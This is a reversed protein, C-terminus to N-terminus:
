PQNLRFQIPFRLRVTNKPHSWRGEADSVARLAAKDLLPHGASRHIKLETLDGKPNVIFQVVATGQINFMRAKRPYHLAREVCLKVEALFPDSVEGYVLTSIGGEAGATPGGPAAIPSPALGPPAAAPAPPGIRHPKEVHRPREEHHKKPRDVPKKEHRPKVFEKKPPKPKPPEPKPPEPKPEPK